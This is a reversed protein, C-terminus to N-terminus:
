ACLYAVPELVRQGRWWEHLDLRELCSPLTEIPTSLNRIYVHRVHPFYALVDVVKKQQKDPDVEGIPAFNVALSQVERGAWAGLASCPAAALSSGTLFLETPPKIWDLVTLAKENPGEREWRVMIRRAQMQKGCGKYQAQVGRTQGDRPLTIHLDELDGKLGALIDVTAITAPHLWVKRLKKGVFAERFSSTREFTPNGLQWHLAISEVNPCAKLIAIYPNYEELHADSYLEFALDKVYRLVQHCGMALYNQAQQLSKRLVIGTSRPIPCASRIKSFHDNDLTIVLQSFLHGQCIRRLPPNVLSLLLLNRIDAKCDCRTDHIIAAVIAELLEFPLSGFPM